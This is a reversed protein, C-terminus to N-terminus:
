QNSMELADKLSAIAVKQGEKHKFVYSGAVLVNAGAEAAIKCTEGDIGGDVQIDLNPYKERLIKVKPMMDNMFSQGGFGPEVTMILIMDIPCEEDNLLAFLADVPTKPKISIGVKMGKSKVIQCLEKADIGEEM